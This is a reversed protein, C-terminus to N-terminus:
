RGKTEEEKTVEVVLMGEMVVDIFSQLRVWTRELPEKELMRRGM